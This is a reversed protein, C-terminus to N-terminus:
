GRLSMFKLLPKQFSDDFSSHYLKPDLKSWQGLAFLFVSKSFHETKPPFSITLNSQWHSAMQQTQSNHKFIKYFVIYWWVPMDWEIDIVYISENRKILLIQQLFHSCNIGYSSCCVDYSVVIGDVAIDETLLLSSDCVTAGFEALEHAGFLPESMVPLTLNEVTYDTINQFLFFFQYWKSHHDHCLLWLCSIKQLM